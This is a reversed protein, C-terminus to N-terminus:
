LPRSLQTQDFPLHPPTPHYPTSVFSLQIAGCFCTATAEGDKSWGDDAGGAVPFFPKSKDNATDSM